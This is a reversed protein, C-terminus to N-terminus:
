ASTSAVPPGASLLRGVSREEALEAREHEALLGRFHDRIEIEHILGGARTRWEKSNRITRWPTGDRHCHNSLQIDTFHGYKEVVQKLLDITTTDSTPTILPTTFGEACVPGSISSPGFAHVARYVALHAPGSEMLSPLDAVIPRGFAMSWGQAIYVLKLYGMGTRGPQMAIFSNLITTSAYM